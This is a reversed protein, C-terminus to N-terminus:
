LLTVICFRPSGDKYLLLWFVAGCEVESLLGKAKHIDNVSPRMSTAVRLPSSVEPSGYYISMPQLKPFKRLLVNAM